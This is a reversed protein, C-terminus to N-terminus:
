PTMSTFCLQLSPKGKAATAFVFSMMAFCACVLRNPKEVVRENVTTIRFQAILLLTAQKMPTQLPPTNQRALANQYPSCWRPLSPFLRFPMRPPSLSHSPFRKKGRKGGGGGCGGRGSKRLCCPPSDVRDCVLVSLEHVGM